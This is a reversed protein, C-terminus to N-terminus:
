VDASGERYIKVAAILGAEVRYFGAIHDSREVGDVRYDERLECAVRDDQVLLSELHLRPALEAFAAAFLREIAGVGRFCDRGTVWAADATFGAMLADLDRANFADLHRRVVAAPDGNV